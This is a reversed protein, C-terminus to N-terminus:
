EPAPQAAPMSSLPPQSGAQTAPVLNLPETLTFLLVTGSALTAQPHDMLLHVTVAGAGVLTGALAGAPGGLAAGAVVGVGMGGGYEVTDKKLRSGPTIQGESGVRTNSGPTGTVQAYLRFRSGNALIVTDPHLLMSGHGGLHGTSVHEVTGDIESGAPILVQNGQFVDSAVTARFTEGDQTYATSLGDLLRARIETGYNLEGPPLSAPHVIDGDPDGAYQSADSAPQPATDPAVQVTGDDDAPPRTELTPNVPTPMANDQQVQQAPVPETNMPHAPSPKPLLVPQQPMPETITSNPPPNSTGTYPDQKGPQQAAVVAAAALLLASAFLSRTM